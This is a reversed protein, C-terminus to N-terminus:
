KDGWVAIYAMICKLNWDALMEQTVEFKIGADIVENFFETYSKLYSALIHKNIKTKNHSITELHNLFMASKKLFKNLGKIEDFKDYQKKVLEILNKCSLVFFYGEECVAAYAYDINKGKEIKHLKRLIKYGDKKLAHNSTIVSKFKM